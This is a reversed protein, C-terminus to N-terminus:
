PCKVKLQDGSSDKRLGVGGTIYFIKQYTQSLGLANTIQASGDTSWGTPFVAETTFTTGSAPVLEYSGDLVSYCVQWWINKM